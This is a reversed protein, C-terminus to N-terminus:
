KREFTPPGNKSYDVVAREVYEKFNKIFVSKYYSDISNNVSKGRWSLAYTSEFADLKSNLSNEKQEEFLLGNAGEKIVEAASGKGYAIVPTNYSLAEILSIGFDEYAMHLFGKAGKYLEIKKEDSVYGLLKIRKNNEILKKLKRYEPGRGAIILERDSKLFAKVILDIKKYQSLRSVVLYYNSKPTDVSIVPTAVPPCIVTSERNWYHSIRKKVANSPAIIYDPRAAAAYDWIRGLTLFYQYFHKLLPVKNMWYESREDLWLSRMPTFVYSIHMQEPITVLGHTYAYSLSLILDYKKNDFSDIHMPYFASMEKYFFKLPSNGLFSKVREHPIGLKDIVENSSIFTIIDANPFVEHFITKLTYEAGGLSTLFPHAILVKMEDLARM